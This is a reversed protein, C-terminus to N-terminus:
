KVSGDSEAVLCTSTLGTGLVTRSSSSEQAIRHFALPILLRINQHINENMPAENNSVHLHTDNAHYSNQSNKGVQKLIVRCLLSGRIRAM